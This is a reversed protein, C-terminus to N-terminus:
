KTRRQRTLFAPEYFDDNIKAVQESLEDVKVNLNDFKATLAQQMGYMSVAATFMAILLAEIVRQANMKTTKQGAPILFPIWSHYDHAESLGENEKVVHNM